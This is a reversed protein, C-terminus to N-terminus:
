RPPKLTVCPLIHRWLEDLNEGTTASVPLVQSQFAHELAALTRSRESRSLKDIKTAVVLRDLGRAALWRGAAVDSELGPHRADVLHVVGVLTPRVAPDGFYAQVVAAFAQRGRRADTHGYGPLDVLYFPALRALRVRYFNVLRTKGPTGSTRAITRRVLANILSSKGVNSRGVLALEPARDAPFDAPGAASTVFEVAEINLPTV